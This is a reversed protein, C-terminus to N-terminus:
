DEQSPATPVLPPTPTLASPRPREPDAPVRSFLIVILAGVLACIPWAFEVGTAQPKLRVPVTAGKAAHALAVSTKGPGLQLGISLMLWSALVSGAIVLLVMLVPRRSRAVTLVVGALLGGVAAIAFFWGDIGILKSLQIQNMEGGHGVRTFTPLDAQHYWLVAGVAGLVAFVFATAVVDIAAARLTAPKM